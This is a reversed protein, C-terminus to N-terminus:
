GHNKKAFGVAAGFGRAPSLVLREGVSALGKDAFPDLSACDVTFGALHPGDQPHPPAVGFAAQFNEADALVITGRPTRFVIRGAAEAIGEGDVFVRMHEGLDLAGDGSIWVDRIALATNEHAQYQPQAFYEPWHHQCAFHGLWPAAPTSAYALSFG